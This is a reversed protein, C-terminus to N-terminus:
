ILIDEPGLLAIDFNSLEISGGDAMTFVVHAGVQDALALVQAKSAFDYATFKLARGRNWLCGSSRGPAWRLLV